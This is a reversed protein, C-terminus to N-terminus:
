RYHRHNRSNCQKEFLVAPSTQICQFTGLFPLHHSYLQWNHLLPRFLLPLQQLLLHQQQQQQQQQPYLPGLQLQARLLM